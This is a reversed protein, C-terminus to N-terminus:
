ATTHARCGICAVEGAAAAAKRAKWHDKMIPGFYLDGAPHLHRCYCCVRQGAPLNQTDAPSGDALTLIALNDATM